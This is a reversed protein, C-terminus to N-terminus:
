SDFGSGQVLLCVGVLWINGAGEFFMRFSTGKARLGGGGVWLSTM